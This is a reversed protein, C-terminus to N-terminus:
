AFNGAAHGLTVIGTYGLLLDLSLAFIIIIIIQTGLPLLDPFLVYAAIGTLWPLLEALRFGRAQTQQEAGITM